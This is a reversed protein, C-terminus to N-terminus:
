PYGFGTFFRWNFIGGELYRSSWWVGLLQNLITTIAVLHISEFLVLALMDGAVNLALMLWVKKANLAPQGMADFAVGQIKEVPLFIMSIGFLFLIEEAEAIQSVKFHLFIFEHGIFLLVMLALSMLMGTKVQRLMQQSFREQEGINWSQALDRFGTVAIARLPIDLLDLVKMPISYLSVMEPGLAWGILYLDVGKLASSGVLTALSRQGYQLLEILITRKAQLFLRLDARRWFILGLNVTVHSALLLTALEQLTFDIWASATAVGFFVANTLVRGIQSLQFHRHAELQWSVAYFPASVIVYIPYYHFFLSFASGVFDGGLCWGLFFICASLAFSVLFTGAWMTGVIQSRRGSPAVSFTWLFGSKLLGIRVLDVMSVATTFLVWSGFLGAGLNRGLLAFILMGLASAIASGRLFSFTSNRTLKQLFYRM